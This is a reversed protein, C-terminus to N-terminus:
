IKVIKSNVHVTVGTETYVTSDHFNIHDLYILKHFSDLM